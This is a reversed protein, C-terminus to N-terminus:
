EWPRTPEPPVGGYVQAILAPESGFPIDKVPAVMLPVDLWVPVELKVTRIVSEPVGCCVVVFAIVIVTAASVMVVADGSGIPAVDVGYEWARAAVFPVAGYVNEMLLPENGAPNVNVLPTMLPEGVAVPVEFKVTRTTSLLTGGTFVVM